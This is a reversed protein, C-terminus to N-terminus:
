LGGAISKRCGKTRRRLELYRVALGNGHTRRAEALKPLEGRIAPRPLRSPFPVLESTGWRAGVLFAAEAASTRGGFFETMGAAAPACGVPKKLDRSPSFRRSRKNRRSEM